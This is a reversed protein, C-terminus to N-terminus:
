RVLAALLPALFPALTRAYTASVHQNDRYVVVGGIVVPCREDPCFVPRTDVYTAGSQRATSSEIQPEVAISDLPRTCAAPTDLNRALCEVPDTDLMPNDRLVLVASGLARLSTYTRVAAASLAAASESAGQPTSGKMVLYDTRGVTIVVDPKERAIRALAATRWTSCERYSRQLLASWVRAGAAPCAHKTLSVLRWGTDRAWADVAPFWATAHSDGFLVVTQSGKPDGYVCEPVATDPYRQHCGDRDTLPLDDRVKTVTPVFGPGPEAVSSAAPRPASPSAAVDPEGADAAPAVVDLAAAGPASAPDNTPGSSALTAAILVLGAVVGIATCAAGLRLAREPHRSLARSHHFPEEVVRRTVVAVAYSAVVVVTAQWWALGGGALIAAFVLLPWHWLYWSYSVGGVRVLARHSLLRSCGADPLRTGAAVLAATGLVPVLAASGPFPMTDSYTLVAWGIALAGGWGLLAAAARPLRAIAPLLMVLAGGIALEWARTFTSFYAWSPSAETQVVSWWLSPVAVLTLGVLLSPTLSRGTRRAARTVSRFLM